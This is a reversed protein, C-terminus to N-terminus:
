PDLLRRLWLRKSSPRSVATLPGLYGGDVTRLYLGAQHRYGWLLTRHFRDASCDGELFDTWM